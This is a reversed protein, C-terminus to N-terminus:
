SLVENLKWIQIELGYRGYNSCCDTQNTNIKSRTPLWNRPSWSRLLARRPALLPPRRRRPEPPLLSSRLETTGSRAGVASPMPMRDDKWGDCCFEAGNGVPKWWDMFGGGFWNFGGPTLLERWCITELRPFTEPWCGSLAAVAAANETRSTKRERIYKM